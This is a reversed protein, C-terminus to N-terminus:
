NLDIKVGGPVKLKVNRLQLTQNSNLIRNDASVESSGDATVKLALGDLQKVQGPTEELIEIVIDTTSNAKIDDNDQSPVRVVATVGDLPLANVGDTTLATATLHLDLPIKNEM